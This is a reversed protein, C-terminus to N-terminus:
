EDTRTDAVVIIDAAIPEQPVVPVAATAAAFLILHCVAAVM